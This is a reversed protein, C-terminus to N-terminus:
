KKASNQGSMFARVAAHMDVKYKKGHSMDFYLYFLRGVKSTLFVNQFFQLAGASRFPDSRVHEKSSVCWNFTLNVKFDYAVCYM